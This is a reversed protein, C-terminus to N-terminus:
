AMREKAWQVDEALTRRTAALPKEVHWKKALLGAGVGIVFMAGALALAAQWPEMYPTLAFVAAVLLLNLMALAAVTAVGLGKAAAIEAKLDAQLETRALELEKKVLEGSKATIDALLAATSLEDMEAEHNRVQMAQRGPQTTDVGEARELLQPEGTLARGLQLAQRYVTQWDDYPAELRTLEESIDRLRSILPASGRHSEPNEDFVSWVRRIQRELEQAQPDTTQLADASALAEVVLGHALTTAREDGQLLLSSPHLTVRLEAGVLYAMREPVFRRMAPGGLSRMAGMSARVWVPPTARALEYGRENLVAEIRSAADRYGQAKTILPVHV